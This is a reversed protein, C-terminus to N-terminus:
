FLFPIASVNRSWQLHSFRRVQNLGSTSFTMKADDDLKGTEPDSGEELQHLIYAKDFPFGSKM